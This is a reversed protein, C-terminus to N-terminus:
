VLDAELEATWISQSEFRQNQYRGPSRLMEKRSRLESALSRHLKLRVGIRGRLSVQIKIFLKVASQEFISVSEIDYTIKMFKRFTFSEEEEFKTHVNSLIAFLARIEVISLPKINKACDETLFQELRRYSESIVVKLVRVYTEYNMPLVVECQDWVYEKLKKLGYGNDCFSKAVLKQDEM